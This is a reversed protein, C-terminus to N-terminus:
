GEDRTVHKAGLQEGAKNHAADRRAESDDRTVGIVVWNLSQDPNGNKDRSVMAVRDADAVLPSADVVARAATESAVTTDPQRPDKDDPKATVTTAKGSGSTTSLAV